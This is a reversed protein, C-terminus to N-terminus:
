SPKKQRRRFFRRWSLAFGTYVLVLSLTTSITAVVKGIMGFAEGTHLFRIWIRAQVGPSRDMFGWTQMVKGSIPNVDVQNRGRTAFPAPEFVVLELPKDMQRVDFSQPLQIGVREWKPFSSVASVLADDFPIFTANVPFESPDLEIEPSALMGPGRHGSPDEGALQFVLNHAWQFSFVVATGVLVLMVPLNWFGIVNHWNLDRSKGKFKPSFWLQYGFLKRTWKKPFWLYFGTVCLLLFGFNCIGTIWKGVSQGKGSMGLWRHWSEMLHFFDHASESKMPRISGDYPNVYVQGSRGAFFTYAKDYANPVLVMTAQFNAKESKVRELLIEIPLVEGLAEAESLYIADRDIREIIEHEFAIIVGTFSMIGVVVGVLLGLVLHLWFVIKRFSM